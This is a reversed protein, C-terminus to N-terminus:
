NRGKEDPYLSPLSDSQWFQKSDIDM